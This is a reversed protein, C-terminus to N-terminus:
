PRAMLLRLKATTADIFVLYRPSSYCARLQMTAAARSSPAPCVANGVNPEDVAVAWLLGHVALGNATSGAPIDGWALVAERVQVQGSGPAADAAMSPVRLFRPVSTAATAQAQAQTIPCRGPLSLRLWAAPTCEPPLASHTLRIGMKDLAGPTVTKLTVPQSSGPRTALGSLSVGAVTALLVAAGLAVLAPLWSKVHSGVGSAAAPYSSPVTV